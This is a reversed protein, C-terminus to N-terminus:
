FKFALVVKEGQPSLLVGANPWDDFIITKMALEHVLAKDVSIEQRYM